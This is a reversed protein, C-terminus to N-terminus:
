DVFKVAPEYFVARNLDSAIDNEAGGTRAEKSPKKNSMSPVIISEVLAISFCQSAHSERGLDWSQRNQLPSVYPTSPLMPLSIPTSALTMRSVDCPRLLMSM